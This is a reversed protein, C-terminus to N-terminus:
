IRVQVIKKKYIDFYLKNTVYYAGSRTYVILCYTNVKGKVRKELDTHVVDMDKFVMEFYDCLQEKNMLIANGFSHVVIPGDVFKDMYVINEHKFTNVLASPAGVNFFIMLSLILKGM